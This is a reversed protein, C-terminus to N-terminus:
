YYIRRERATLETFQAGQKGESGDLRASVRM